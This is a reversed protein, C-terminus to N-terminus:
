PRANLALGQFLNHTFGVTDFRGAKSEDYGAGEPAVAGFPGSTRASIARRRSLRTGGPPPRSAGEAEACGLTSEAGEGRGLSLGAKVRM